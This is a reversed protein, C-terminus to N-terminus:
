TSEHEAGIRCVEECSMSLATPYLRQNPVRLADRVALSLWPRLGDAAAARKPM